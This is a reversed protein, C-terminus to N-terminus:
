RSLVHPPPALSAPCTARSTTALRRRYIRWIGTAGQFARWGNATSACRPQRTSRTLEYIPQRLRLKWDDDRRILLDYFRGAFVVDCLVGDVEARQTVTMKTQAIARAESIQINSGGLFHLIRV